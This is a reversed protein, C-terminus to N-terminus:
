SVEGRIYHQLHDITTAQEEIIAAFLDRLSLMGILQADEIVPLHRVHHRKMLRVCDDIHQRPDVVIVDHTMIERVPISASQKNKLIVKRAYDRESIIGELRDSSVPGDDSRAGAIVFLAGVEHQAMTAIADLVSDSPAISWISGDKQKLVEHVLKM